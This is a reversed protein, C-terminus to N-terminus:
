LKEEEDLPIYQLNDTNLLFYKSSPEMVIFYNNHPTPIPIAKFLQFKDEEINPIDIEIMIRKNILTSYISILKDKIEIPIFNDITIVTSIQSLDRFKNGIIIENIMLDLKSDLDIIEHDSTEINKKLGSFIKTNM